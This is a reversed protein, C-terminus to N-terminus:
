IGSDFEVNWPEHTREHKFWNNWADCGPAVPSLDVQTFIDAKRELFQMALGEGV